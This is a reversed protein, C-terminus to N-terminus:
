KGDGVDSKNPPKGANKVAEYFLAFQQDTERLKNIDLSELQEEAKRTSRRVREVLQRARTAAAAAQDGQLLWAEIAPDPVVLKFQTYSIQERILRETATLEGDSDAVVIVTVIQAAPAFLNAVRPLNQKGGAHVVEVNATLENHKLISYALDRLVFGDFQGECVIIIHGTPPAEPKTPEPVIIEEGTAPQPIVAALDVLAGSRYVSGTEAAERLRLKLLKSFAGKGSVIFDMDQNDFLLVNLSKGLVLADVCEKTYGSMSIFVGLTGVLKGEVKGKFQYITSASIEESHWKAELLFIRGDCVFSGDIQEGTAKYSTRPDFGDRTLVANLLQEFRYGRRQFWLRDADLPPNCLEEYLSKIESQTM